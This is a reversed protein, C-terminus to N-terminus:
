AGHSGGKLKKYEEMHLDALQQFLQAEKLYSEAVGTGEGEGEMMEESAEEQATEQGGFPRGYQDKAM